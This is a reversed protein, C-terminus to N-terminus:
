PEGKEALALYETMAHLHVSDSAAYNQRYRTIVCGREKMFAIAVAAQASPVNERQVIETLTFGNVGVEDIAHAVQEYTSRACQHEYPRGRGQAPVVSRVLHDDVVNFLEQREKGPRSQSKPDHEPDISM